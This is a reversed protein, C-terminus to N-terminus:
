YTRHEHEHMSKLGESTCKFGDTEASKLQPNKKQM